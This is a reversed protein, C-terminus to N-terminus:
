RFILLGDTHTGECDAGSFNITIVGDDAISGTGEFLGSCARVRDDYRFKTVTKGDIEFRLLGDNEGSNCCSVLGVAFFFEGQFVNPDDTATVRASIPYNEYKKSPLTSSWSGLYNRAISKEGPVEGAGDDDSGCSINLMMLMGAVILVTKKM